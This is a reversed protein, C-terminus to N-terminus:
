GNQIGGKKSAEILMELKYSGILAEVEDVLDYYTCGYLPTEGEAGTRDEDPVYINHQDLLNEFLDVIEFALQRKRSNVM